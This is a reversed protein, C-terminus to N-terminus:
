DLEPKKAWYVMKEKTHETRTVHDADQFYGEKGKEKLYHMAFVLTKGKKNIEFAGLVYDRNKPKRETVNIWTIKSTKKKM